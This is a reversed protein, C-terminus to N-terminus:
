HRDVEDPMPLKDLYSLDTRDRKAIAFGPPQEAESFMPQRLRWERVVVRHAIRWGAGPRKEFRDLYRCGFADMQLAEGEGPLVHHAICYSEARATPIAPELDVDIVINHLTHMSSKFKLLHDMVWTVYGEATGSYGAGHDDIAGDHYVSRLLDADRRDIARCYLNLAREIDREALLLDLESAPNGM